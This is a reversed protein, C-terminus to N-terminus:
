LLEHKEVGTHEANPNNEVFADHPRKEQCATLLVTGMDGLMSCFYICFRHM